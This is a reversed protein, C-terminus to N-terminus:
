HYSFYVFTMEEAVSTKMVFFLFASSFVRVRSSCTIDLIIFM